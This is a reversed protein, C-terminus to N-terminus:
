RTEQTEMGLSTTLHEPVVRGHPLVQVGVPRPHMHARLAALGEHLAGLQLSVLQNM